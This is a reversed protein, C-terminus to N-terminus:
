YQICLEGNRDSDVTRVGVFEVFEGRFGFVDLKRVSIHDLFGISFEFQFCCFDFTEPNRLILV